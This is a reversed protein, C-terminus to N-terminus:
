KTREKAVRKVRGRLIDKEFEAFASAITFVMKGMDSSTDIHEKYSVFSIGLSKFEELANILHKMSRAFRDLRWILVAHFRKKRADSMMADLQPRRGKAGSVGYDVYTRFTEWGRGEIYHELDRLQLGVDRKKDSPSTGMWAYVACRIM